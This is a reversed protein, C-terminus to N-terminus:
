KGFDGRVVENSRHDSAFDIGEVGVSIARDSVGHEADLIKLAGAKGLWGVEFDLLAFDDADEAEDAGTSCLGEIEDGSSGRSARTVDGHAVATKLAEIRFGSELLANAKARFISLLFADDGDGTDSVIDVESDSLAKDNVGLCLPRIGLAADLLETDAGWANLM